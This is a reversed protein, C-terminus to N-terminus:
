LFYSSIASLRGRFVFFIHFVILSNSLTHSLILSYSLRPAFGEWVNGYDGMFDWVNGYFIYLM